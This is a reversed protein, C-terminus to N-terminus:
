EEPGPDPAGVPAHVPTAAAAPKEVSAAPPRVPARAPSALPRPGAAPRPAGHTAVGTANTPGGEIWIERDGLDLLEMHRAEVHYGQATDAKGLHLLFHTIERGPLQVRTSALHVNDARAVESGAVVQWHVLADRMEVRQEAFIDLVSAPTDNTPAVTASSGYRALDLNMRAALWDSVQSFQVPQWKGAADLAFHLDCGDANLERLPDVGFFLKLASWRIVVRKAAVHAKLPHDPVACHVDELVLTFAPTLAAHGVQFDLGTHKDLRGKVLAAFGATRSLLLAGVYLIGGLVVLTALLGSFSHFFGRRPAHPQGPSSLPIQPQQIFERM